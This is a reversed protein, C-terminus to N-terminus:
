PRFVTGYKYLCLSSGKAKASLQLSKFQPVANQMLYTEQDYVSNGVRRVVAMFILEVLTCHCHCLCYKIQYM